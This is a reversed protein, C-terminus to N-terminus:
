LGWLADRFRKESESIGEDAASSGSGTSAKQASEATQKAATVKKDESHKFRLYASMLDMGKAAMEKVAPPVSAFNAIEPFEAQLELFENALRSNLSEQKEKAANQETETRTELIKQYKQKQTDRHAQLLIELEETDEGFKEVLGQRFQAEDDAIMGDVLAEPTVGKLAAIYDLKSYIPKVTGIDLGSESYLKGLQAFKVAEERSLTMDEHNYRIPLFASDKANQENGSGEVANQEGEAQNTGESQEDAKQEAGPVEQENTDNLNEMNNTEDM